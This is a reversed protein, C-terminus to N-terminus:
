TFVHVEDMIMWADYFTQVTLYRGSVPEKMNFTEVLDNIPAEDRCAVLRNEDGFKVVRSQSKDVNGIRMELRTFLPKHANSAKTVQVQVIDKPANLCSILGHKIVNSYNVQVQLEAGFDVQFWRYKQPNTPMFYKGTGTVGDIANNHHYNAMNQNFGSSSASWAQRSVPALSLICKNWLAITMFQQRSVWLRSRLKRASPARSRETTMGMVRRAELDHLHTQALGQSNTFRAPVRVSVHLNHGVPGNAM